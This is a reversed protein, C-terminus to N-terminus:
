AGWRSMAAGQELTTTGVTTRERLLEATISYPPAKMPREKAQDVIADAITRELSLRPYAAHIAAAQEDSVCETDRGFDLGM